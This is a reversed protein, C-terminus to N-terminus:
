PRCNLLTEGEFEFRMSALLLAQTRGVESVTAFGRTKATQIPSQPDGEKLRYHRTVEMYPLQGSGVDQTEIKYESLPVGADASRCRYTGDKYAQAGLAFTTLALVTLFKM